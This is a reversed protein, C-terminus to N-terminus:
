ASHTQCRRVESRHSVRCGRDYEPDYMLMRGNGHEKLIKAIARKLPKRRYGADKCLYRLVSFGSAFVQGVLNQYVEIATDIDLHLIAILIVILGGTSTGAILDFYLYPYILGEPQL